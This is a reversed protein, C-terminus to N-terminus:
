KLLSLYLDRLKKGFNEFGFSSVIKSRILLSNYEKYHETLHAMANELAAVDNPNILLGSQADVFEPPATTNTTIVPLGASLAEAVVLGFSEHRSPFVFFSANQMEQAIEKKSRKGLLFVKQKLAPNAELYQKIPEYEQGNGIITLRWGPKYVALNSFTKVVRLAGKFDDLRGAFLINKTESPTTAPTFLETDVPNNSVLIKKPKIGAALIENKQHESVCLVVDAKQMIYQTWSKRWPSSTVTSFPGVHETLVFPVHLRRALRLALTGSLISGHAHIIDVPAIKKVEALGKIFWAVYYLPKLFSPIKKARINLRYIKSNGYQEQSLGKKEGVLRNVFVTNNCYPETSQLYDLLFIGQVDGEQKPFLDPIVLVNIKGARTM